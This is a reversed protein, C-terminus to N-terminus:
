GNKLEWTINVSDVKAHLRSCLEVLRDNNTNATVYSCGCQTAFKFLTLLGPKFTSLDVGELGYIIFITMVKHSTLSDDTIYTIVIGKTKNEQVEVWAQMTESLLAELINSYSENTLREQEGAVIEIAKRIFDWYSSVQEPTLKVLM